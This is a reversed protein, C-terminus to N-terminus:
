RAITLTRAVRVGDADLVVLYLGAALRSADFTATHDGPPRPGSALVAVERGLVDLVRLRVPSAGAVSYRVTALARAPNPGVALALGSPSPAEDESAVGFLDSSVLRFVTGPEPVEAAYPPASGLNWGVFVTRALVEPGHAEPNSAATVLWAQYGAEGPTTDTPEYWYIWDTVPDDDASSIPSDSASLNYTGSGDIDLLVPIMRVDDSPDDPTGIGVNWIEFPIEVLSGDGFRQYATSAGTFRAEYDFPFARTSNDSRLVRDLFEEYPGSYAGSNGTAVLWRTGNTQQVGAVPNEDEPTPFGQFAAAGPHPPIPGSANAVVEFSSFARRIYRFQRYDSVPGLAGLNAARVRWFKPTLDNYGFVDPGIEAETATVDRDIILSDFAATPAIQLRYETADPVATWSFTAAPESVTEGDAPALLDPAATPAPPEATRDTLVGADYLAQALDSVEFLEYVSDIQDTGTAFLIALNVTTREGPALTPIEATIMGRRDAPTRATGQGDTDYESWFAPPDGNFMWRTVPGNTIYGNGGVKLPTGDKWLAQQFTYAESANGPDNTVGSSTFYMSSSGGSLIDVGLAPPPTGYGGGGEDDSDGNYVYYLSREPNSGQYDDNFNGLDPDVWMTAYGAEIVSASRNIIEYRYFTSEYLAPEDEGGRVWATVRVEIGLPDTGGWDHPGGADNMVWWATQRGFLVPREGAALNLTKTGYGPDGLDLSVTPEDDGQAGDGNVDVFYPAGVGVPWEALDRTAAGTAEYADLDVGAVTWIRDYAACTEPTTKADADLPGPWYEWPGYTSGAFRLDGDVLGGVWLGAAFIAMTGSGRPVEYQAGQGRWFLGGFNYLRARVGALDLEAEAVGTACDGPTAQAALPAAPKQASAALPLLLAALLLLPRM